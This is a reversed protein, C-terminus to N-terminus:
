TFVGGDLNGSQNALDFCNARVGAPDYLLSAMVQVWAATDRGYPGDTLPAEPVGGPPGQPGPNAVTTLMTTAAVKATVLGQATVTTVAIEQTVVTIM